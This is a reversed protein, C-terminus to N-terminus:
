GKPRPHGVTWMALYRELARTAPGADGTALVDILLGRTVAVGLRLEDEDMDVGIQGGVKASVDLWPDTLGEGGTLGVCEFFLRVFTQMEPASVRGWLARVLEAPDDIERALETLLARQAEETSEVVAAVLGARSGFHYLLMRHSSGVAEALERLSRDALGNAAVEAVVRELLQTRGDPMQPM